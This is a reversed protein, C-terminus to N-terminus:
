FIKKRIMMFGGTNGIVNKTFTTYNYYTKFGLHSLMLRNNKDVGILMGDHQVTNDSFYLRGGVTGVNSNEKFVLLMNYIVNNLVKIDNNSFLLFNYDDTIYNKVVDNNIKAFNYYDYEILKIIRNDSFKSIYENIQKKEEDTSGTDAIYVIKNTYSDVEYLSNICELLM